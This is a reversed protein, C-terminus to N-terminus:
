VGSLFQGQTMDQGLPPTPLYPKCYWCHPCRKEVVVMMLWSGFYITDPITSFGERKLHSSPITKFTSPMNAWGIGKLNRPTKHNQSLWTTCSLSTSLQYPRTTSTCLPHEIRTAPTPRTTSICSSTQHPYSDTSDNFETPRDNRTASTPRPQYISIGTKVTRQTLRPSDIQNSAWVALRVPALQQLALVTRVARRVHVPHQM